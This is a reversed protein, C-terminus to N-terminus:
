QVLCFSDWFIFCFPFLPLSSSSSSWLLWSSPLSLSGTRKCVLSFGTRNRCSPHHQFPMMRQFLGHQFSLYRAFSRSFSLSPSPFFADALPKSAGRILSPSWFLIASQVSSGHMGDRGSLSLHGNLEPHHKRWCTTQQKKIKKWYNHARSIVAETTECPNRSKM